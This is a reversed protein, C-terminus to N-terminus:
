QCRRLLKGPEVEVSELRALDGPEADDLVLVESERRADLHRLDLLHLPELEVVDHQELRARRAVRVGGPRSPPQMDAGRSRDVLEPERADARRRRRHPYLERRLPLRWVARCRRAPREADTSTPTSRAISTGFAGSRRISCCGRSRGHACGLRCARCTTCTRTSCSAWRRAARCTTAIRRASARAWARPGACTTRSTSSCRRPTPRTRAIG